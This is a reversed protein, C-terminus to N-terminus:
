FQAVAQPPISQKNTEIAKPVRSLGGSRVQRKLGREKPPPFPASTPHRPAYSIYRIPKSNVKRRNQKRKQRVFPNSREIDLQQSDTVRYKPKNDKIFTLASKERQHPLELNRRSGKRTSSLTDNYPRTVFLGCRNGHGTAWKLHPLYRSGQIGTSATIGSCTRM